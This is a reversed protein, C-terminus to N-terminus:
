IHIPPDTNKKSLMTDLLEDRMENVQGQLDKELKNAETTQTSTDVIM